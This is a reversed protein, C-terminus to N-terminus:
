YGLQVPENNISLTPQDLEIWTMIQPQITKFLWIMISVALENLHPFKIKECPLLPLAFDMKSIWSVACSRHKWRIPIPSPLQLAQLLDADSTSLPPLSSLSRTSSSRRLDRMTVLAAVANKFLFSQGPVSTSSYPARNKDMEPFTSEMTAECEKLLRSILDTAFFPQVLVRSIYPPRLLDGSRKDYKKLIKTLGTLIIIAIIIISVIIKILIAVVFSPWKKHHISHSISSIISEITCQNTSLTLKFRFFNIILLQPIQLFIFTFDM